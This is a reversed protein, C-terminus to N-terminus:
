CSSRKATERIIKRIALRYELQEDFTQPMFDDKTVLLIDVDSDENPTDYAYSGFLLIL